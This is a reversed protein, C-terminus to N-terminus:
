QPFLPEACKIVHHSGGPQLDSSPFPKKEVDPTQKIENQKWEQKSQATDLIANALRCM